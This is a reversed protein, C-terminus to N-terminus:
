RQELHNGLVHIHVKCANTKKEARFYIRDVWGLRGRGSSWQQRQSSVDKCDAIALVLSVESTASEKQSWSSATNTFLQVHSLRPTNNLVVQLRDYFIMM